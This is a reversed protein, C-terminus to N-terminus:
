PYWSVTNFDAMFLFYFLDDYGALDCFILYLSFYSCSISRLLPPSFVCTCVCICFKRIALLKLVNKLSSIITKQCLLCIVM